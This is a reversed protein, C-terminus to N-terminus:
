ALQNTTTTTGEKLKKHIEKAEKYTPTWFSGREKELWEPFESM